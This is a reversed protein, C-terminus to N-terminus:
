AAYICKELDEPTDIDMLIRSDLWPLWTHQFHGMIARGGTDGELLLLEGFTMRDFLVPNSRQDEVMPAIIPTMSTMHLSKLKELLETSVFPQDVLMFIAAGCRGGLRRLGTHVSSSQGSEWDSNFAVEIDMGTLKSIVLDSQYGTVVIVPNLGSRVATTIAREILPEGQFEVLPKPNGEMRTSGGAALIIAAVNEVRAFVIPELHQYGIATILVQDYKTKCYNAIRLIESLMNVDEAQNLVLIRKAKEPIGRLGGNPHCLVEVLGAVTIVEGEMLMALKGFVEPRFVSDSSLPKGLASMGALVIVADAWDPIVPEHDSPAKLPLMRAGDAEILISFQHEISREYLFKIDEISLGNLRHGDIAPGTISVMHPLKGWDINELDSISSVFFKQEAKEIQDLGLHTTTTIVVKNNFSEALRWITSTKGGAGVVAVRCPEHLRMIEHLKM